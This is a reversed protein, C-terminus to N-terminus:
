RVVCNGGVAFFFCWAHPRCPPNWRRVLQLRLSFSRTDKILPRYIDCDIICLAHGLCHLESSSNPISRLVTARASFWSFLSRLLCIELYKSRLRDNLVLLRRAVTFLTMRFEEHLRKQWVSVPCPPLRASFFFGHHSNFDRARKSFSLSTAQDSGRM